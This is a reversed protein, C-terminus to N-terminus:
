YIPNPVPAVEAPRRALMLAIAWAMVRDDHYGQPASTDGDKGIRYIQLEDLTAQSHVQALGDRLATALLDISQPKTQATTLWGRRGDHGLAVKRAQLARLKVLVAHGHNNREVGITADYVQALAWLLDAYDDSEWHGHLSAAEEWSEADILAAASYDGHELGEAVDAGIIYRRGIKPLAYVTIGDIIRLRDPLLKAPIAQRAHSAQRAIWDPHFRTRGSVLFAEQATAPYEQKVIAVDTYEALQNAYWAADRGPRAWWPLFITKFTNLGAVAKTWLQHFLNGIGNATSLVILQGGNDITPKLASYLADAFLLFAAEDLIVLSATDSRGAGPSAPLSEIRSGNAWHLETTNSKVLAPTAEKLWAPLRAYLKAVRALMKNAEAQGRSFILVVKGLHFLCLWLAYACCIWSIGLQRAKLIIILRETMLAWMVGVQAPWLVFPTTGGGDGQSDDITLYENTLYAADAACKAFEIATRDDAQAM